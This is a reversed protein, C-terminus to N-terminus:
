APDAKPGTVAAFLNRGFRALGKVLYAQTEDDIVDVGNVKVKIDEGEFASAAITESEAASIGNPLAAVVKTAVGVLVPGLKAIATGIQLGQKLNM